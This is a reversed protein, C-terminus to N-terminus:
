HPRSQSEILRDIRADLRDFRKSNDASSTQINQAIANLQQASEDHNRDIKQKLDQIQGALGRVVYGPRSPEGIQAQLHAIAKRNELPLAVVHVATYLVGSLVSVLSVLSLLTNVNLEYRVNWGFLRFSKMEPALARAVEVVRAITEDKAENAIVRDDNM